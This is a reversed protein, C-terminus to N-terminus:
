AWVVGSRGQKASPITRGDLMCEIAAPSISHDAMLEELESEDERIRQDLMEILYTM